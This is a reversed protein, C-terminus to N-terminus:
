KLALAGYEVAADEWVLAHHSAAGLLNRYQRQLHGDLSLARGGASNFLRTTAKLCMQAALCVNRKSTAKMFATVPQGMEIGRVSQKLSSLYLAEAAAIEGSSRAAIEQTTALDAISVGRSKRERTYDLWEQLVGKAMGVTLAAFGATTIGSGRPIRYVLAKNVKTGPGEGRNALKGDLVRHEPIFANVVEFTKSGTGSLGMMNWDDIITIDSRPVLFFHPGDKAGDRLIYGGCIVWDAHDVGSSFGHRGSFLFGCQVPEARGVPDFSASILADENFRWVEDQAEVPFTGLMQAHDAMIRQIWAQSGCGAALIQSVECLTDWDIEYGGFRKPQTARILGMAKYDNVTEDPVRRM